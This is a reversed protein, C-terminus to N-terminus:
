RGSGDDYSSHSLDRAYAASWPNRERLEEAFALGKECSGTARSKM